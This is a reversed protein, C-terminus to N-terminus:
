SVAPPAPPTAPPTATVPDSPVNNWWNIARQRGRTAGYITGVGAGFLELINIVTDTWPTSHAAAKFSAAAHTRGSIAMDTKVADDIAAKVEPKTPDVKAILDSINKHNQDALDSPVGLHTLQEGTGTAEALAAADNSAKEALPVNAPDAKVALDALANVADLNSQGMRGSVCAVVAAACVVMLLLYRM